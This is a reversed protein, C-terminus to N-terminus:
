PHLKGGCKWCVTENKSVRDNSCTPCVYDNVSHSGNVQASGAEAWAVIEKLSELPLIIADDHRVLLISNDLAGNKRQRMIITATARSWTPSDVNVDCSEGPSRVITSMVKAVVEKVLADLLQRDLKNMPSMLQPTGVWKNHIRVIGIM